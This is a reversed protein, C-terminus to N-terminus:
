AMMRAMILRLPGIEQQSLTGVPAADLLRRTSITRLQDTLVWGSVKGASIQVRHRLNPRERSTIPMVTAMEYRGLRLHFDSSVIVVPRRGAQEHGRVPDLDAYWVQWPALTTM